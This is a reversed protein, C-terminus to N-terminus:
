GLAQSQKAYSHSPPPVDIFFPEEKLVWPGRRSRVTITVCSGEVVPRVKQNLLDSAARVSLGAVKAANLWPLNIEGSPTVVVTKSLESHRYVSIRLVDGPYIYYEYYSRPGEVRYQPTQASLVGACLATSLLATAGIGCRRTKAGLM